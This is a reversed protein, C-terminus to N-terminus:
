ALDGTEEDDADQATFYAAFLLKCSTDQVALDAHHLELAALQLLWAAQYLRAPRTVGQILM